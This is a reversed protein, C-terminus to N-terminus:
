LSNINQDFSLYVKGSCYTKKRARTLTKEIATCSKLYLRLGFIFNIKNIILLKLINHINVLTRPSKLYLM